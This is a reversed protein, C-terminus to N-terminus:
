RKRIRISYNRYCFIKGLFVTSVMRLSFNRDPYNLKGPGNSPECYIAEKPVSCKLKIPINEKNKLSFIFANPDYKYISNGSWDEDTYGGFM